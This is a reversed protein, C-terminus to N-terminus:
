TKVTVSPATGSGLQGSTKVDDSTKSPLGEERNIGHFYDISVNNSKGDTIIIKAVALVLSFYVIDEVSGTETFTLNVAAGFVAMHPFMYVPMKGRRAVVEIRLYNRYYDMFYDKGYNNGPDLLVGNVTLLMSGMGLPLVSFMNGINEELQLVENISYSVNQVVLDIKFPSTSTTNEYIAVRGSFDDYSTELTSLPILTDSTLQGSSGSLLSSIASVSM